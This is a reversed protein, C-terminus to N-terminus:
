GAVPHMRDLRQRPRDADSHVSVKWRPTKWLPGGSGNGCLWPSGGGVPFLHAGPDPGQEVSWSHDHVSWAPPTQTPHALIEGGHVFEHRAVPLTRRGYPVPTRATGAVDGSHAAVAPATQCVCLSGGELSSLPGAASASPVPASPPAPHEASRAGWPQAARHCVQPYLGDMGCVLGAPANEPGPIGASLASGAAQASRAPGSLYSLIASAYRHTRGGFLWTEMPLSTAFLSALM